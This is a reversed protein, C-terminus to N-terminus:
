ATAESAQQAPLVLQEIQVAYGGGAPALHGLARPNGELAPPACIVVAGSIIVAPSAAGTWGFLASPAIRLPDVLRVHAHPRMVAPSPEGVTSMCLQGNSEFLRAALLGAGQVLPRLRANWAQSFSSPLLVMGGVEIGALDAPSLPLTDIILDCDLSEWAWTKLAEPPPTQIGSLVALPIYVDVDMEAHHVLLHENFMWRGASTLSGESLSPLVGVGLWDEFLGLWRETQLLAIAADLTLRGLGRSQKHMPLSIGMVGSGLPATYLYRSKATRRSEFRQDQQM